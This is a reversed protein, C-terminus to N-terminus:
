KDSAKATEAPIDPQTGEKISTLRGKATSHLKWLKTGTPLYQVCYFELPFNWGLVNTSRRIQYQFIPQNNTAVLDLSRPLGLGDKFVTTKDSWGSSALTSEKWFDSPPFIQRGARKLFSGSCVALWCIRGPVDFTMLDPVRVPRGPNGDTSDYIRTTRDSTQSNVSHAIFNTGTFWYSQKGNRADREILWTNTGVVCRVAYNAHFISPLNLSNKELNRNARDILFPSDWDNFDIEATLEVFQAAGCHLPLLVLLYHVASWRRAKHHITKM